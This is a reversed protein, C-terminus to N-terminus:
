KDGFVERGFLFWCLNKDCECRECLMVVFMYDYGYGGFIYILGYYGLIDLIGLLVGRLGNGYFFCNLDWKCFIGVKMNGYIYYGCNIVFYCGGFFLLSGFMGLVFVLCVGYIFLYFIFIRFLFGKMYFFVFSFVFLIFMGSGDYM